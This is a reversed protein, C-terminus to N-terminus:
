TATLRSSTSATTGTAAGSVAAWVNGESDCRIGDAGGPTNDVFRRGAGVKGATVPYVHISRPAGGSDVVYLRSEDPAFCLGNPRELEQVVPAATAGSPDMRYVATAARPAGATGRLRSMSGYGPDTFWVSGDSAVVVDNPANLPRGDVQDALM